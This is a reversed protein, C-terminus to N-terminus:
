WWTSKKRGRGPSTEVPPPPEVGPEEVVPEAEPPAEVVVPVPEPEPPMLRELMEKMGNLEGQLEAIRADRWAEETGANIQALKVDRGAEIEAIAVAAEAVEGAPEETVVVPVDVAHELGCEPCIHTM